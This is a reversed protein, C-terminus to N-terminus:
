GVKVFSQTIRPNSSALEGGGTVIPGWHRDMDSTTSGSLREGEIMLYGKMKSNVPPSRTLLWDRYSKKRTTLKADGNPVFVWSELDRDRPGSPWQDSFDRDYIKIPKGIHKALYDVTLLQLGNLKTSAYPTWRQVGNKAAVAVWLRGNNGSMITGEEVETASLEPSPRARRYAEMM